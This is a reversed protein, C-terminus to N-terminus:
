GVMYPVAFGGSILAQNVNTETGDPQIAYITALWRGYKDASDAKLTEVRLQRLGCLRVLEARAALGAARSAGVVEPTNIGLLRVDIRVHTRFGLDVDLWVTDGDVVRILTANYEFM